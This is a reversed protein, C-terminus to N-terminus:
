ISLIDNKLMDKINDKFVDMDEEIRCDPPLNNWINCGYYFPKKKFTETQPKPLKIIPGQHIRTYRVPTQIQFLGNSINRKISCMLQLVRKKKLTMANARLLLLNVHLDQPNFINYACRLAHNQITDLDSLDDINCGTLFMNGYDMVPIVMSKAITVAAKETLLKRIKRLLKLKYSAARKVQKIYPKFSLQSDLVVGLYTYTRTMELIHEGMTVQPPHNVNHSSFFMYKTKKLNITLRNSQCWSDITNLDDQFISVDNQILANARDVTRYIVLDDAYLLMQSNHINTNIDNIYILFLLPGMISGQPVGCPVPKEKSRINNLLTLQVRNNLYNTLWNLVSLDLNLAAAKRILVLHDVTDFAKKYDVYVAVTDLGINNNTDIDSIFKHITDITSHSKRFGNQYPSLM